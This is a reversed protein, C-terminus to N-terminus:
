SSASAYRRLGRKFVFVSLGLWAATAGFLWAFNDWSFGSILMRAPANSLVVCPLIWVFSVNTVGSFAQKPLRSFEYIAFYGGEVGQTGITWFSVATVLLLIAYSIAVGCVVFVVYAAIELM